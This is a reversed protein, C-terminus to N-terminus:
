ILRMNLRKYMTIKENVLKEVTHINTNNDLAIKAITANYVSILEELTSNTDIKGILPETTGIITLRLYYEEKTRHVM